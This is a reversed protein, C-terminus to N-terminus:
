EGLTAGWRTGRRHGLSGHGDAVGWRKASGALGKTVAVELARDTACAIALAPSWPQHDRAIANLIVLLKHACAILAVKRPKGAAVLHV